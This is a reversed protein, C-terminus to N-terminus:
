ENPEIKLFKTDVPEYPQSSQAQKMVLTFDKGEELNKGYLKFSIDGSPAFIKQVHDMDDANSLNLTVTMDNYELIVTAPYDKLWTRSADISIEINQLHRNKMVESM